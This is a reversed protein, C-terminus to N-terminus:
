APGEVSTVAALAANRADGSAGLWVRLGMSRFMQLMPEGAHDLIVGEVGHDKLFTAVRAHHGGETGQDHLTDWGVDIEDWRRVLGDQIEAIAVRRARGWRPDVAGDPGVPVCVIM